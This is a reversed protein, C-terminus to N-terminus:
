RAFILPFVRHSLGATSSSANLSIAALHQVQSPYKSARAIASSRRSRAARRRNRSKAATGRGRRRKPLYSHRRWQRARAPYRSRPAPKEAEPNESSREKEPHERRCRNRDFGSADDAKLALRQGDFVTTACPRENEVLPRLDQSGGGCREAPGRGAAVAHRSRQQRGQDRHDTAAGGAAREVAIQAPRAVARALRRGFQRRRCRGRIRHPQRRAPPRLAAAHPEATRPPRKLLLSTSRQRAQRPCTAAADRRRKRRLRSPRRRRPSSPTTSLAAPAAPQCGDQRTGARDAQLGGPDPPGMMSKAPGMPLGHNDGAPEVSCSRCRAAPAAVPAPAAAALKASAQEHRKTEAVQKGTM